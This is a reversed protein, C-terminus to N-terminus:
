SAILGVIRVSLPMVLCRSKGEADISAVLLWGAGVLAKSSGENGCQMPLGDLM